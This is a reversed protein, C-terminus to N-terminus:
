MKCWALRRPTVRHGGIARSRRERELKWTAYKSFDPFNLEADKTFNRDLELLVGRKQVLYYERFLDYLLRGSQQIRKYKFNDRDTPNDESTYVRLMRVVMYGIFYAKDLYNNAGIHPIFYNMLIDLVYSITQRKTFTAIFELATQQTFIKNADHVSPIFYDVYRENKKMDLVCHQIIDRDSIVGLARMLIFLPIPKRVNPIDVVIQGNSMTTSPAVMMVATKRVAKSTDESVSRIEASYSYTNDDKYKRVYLMNDAFTEQPIILKEKGDIIFYGGYDNRCEGMNYCVDPALDHLICTNSKLMIPFKGLYVKNLERTEIVEEDTGKKTVIDIEVDYHITTGYTMNRLRADNPYMFHSRNEDYIVPKGFYIKKGDKGGLHMLIEVSGRTQATDAEIYRFPNNEKFIKAIGHEMFDNYSDLHHAVLSGTNDKFYTEIIKWSIPEMIYIIYM